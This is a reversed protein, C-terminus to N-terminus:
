QLRGWVERDLEFTAQTTEVLQNWPIPFTIGKRISTSFTELAKLHGKDQQDSIVQKSEDYLTLEKFDNIVAGKYDWVAEIREKPHLPNGLSSYILNCVSGDEYSFQASFNEDPRCLDSPAGHIAVISVKKLPSDVVYRFFDIMHCAEGILRGGGEESKTWHTAPLHGANVQYNVMLPSKRNSLAKFLTKTMPAFRRNFGVMFTLPKDLKEMSRELEELEEFSLALPKELYVHKQHLLAERAMSAHMNHRTSIFVANINSDSLIDEYKTSIVSAKVQKGVLSASSSSAACVGVISFRDDLEKLNSLHMGKVFEGVGVLGLRIEGGYSVLDSFEGILQPIKPKSETPPYTLLAAIVKSSKGNKLFQFAQRSDDIQFEKAILSEVKVRGEDVFALFASMNRNETWRVYPYPYDQGDLEYSPDYRGPGYSCSILFDQEKEYFPSRELEMGVAGIVIVKGKKRTLQFSQQTILSTKSSATLLSADVGQGFSHLRVMNALEKASSTGLSMGNQLALQVRDLLPDFGIVKVGSAELIQATLQGILGLGMVCAVEGIKLDGRRVGQLAIAGLTSFVASSDTVGYPVKVVLPEPVSIVEAHNALNSGACAVRDGVLFHRVEQGVALVQGVCSYGLPQYTNLKEHVLAITKKIGRVRVSDLIKKLNKPHNKIGQFVSRGSQEVTSLETGTSILSKSVEVLVNHPKLAPPPVNEILIEGKHLLLQKM